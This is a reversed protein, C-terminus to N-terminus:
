TFFWGFENPDETTIDAQDIIQGNEINTEKKGSGTIGDDSSDSDVM